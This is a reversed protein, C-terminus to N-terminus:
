WADDYERAMGSGFGRAMSSCCGNVRMEAFLERAKEINNANCFATILVTDGTRRFLEM